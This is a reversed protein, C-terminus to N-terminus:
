PIPTWHGDDWRYILPSIGRAAAAYDREVQQKLGVMTDDPKATGVVVRVDSPIAIWIFGSVSKALERWRAEALMYSAGYDYDPILIATSRFSDADPLPPLAALAQATGRALAQERTM